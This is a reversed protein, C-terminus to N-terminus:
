PLLRPKQCIYLALTTCDSARWKSLNGGSYQICNANPSTPITDTYWDASTDDSEFRYDGQTKMKDNIGIWYNQSLDRGKNGVKENIEENRPEFLITGMDNCNQNANDYTELTTGFFLCYGGVYKFSREEECM